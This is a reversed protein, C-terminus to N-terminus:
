FFFFFFELVLFLFPLVIAFTIIFIETERWREGEVGERM